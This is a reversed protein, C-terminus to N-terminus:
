KKSPASAKDDDEDEDDDDDADDEDDGDSDSMASMMQYSVGAQILAALGRIEGYSVRVAGEARAPSLAFWMGIGADGTNPLQNLIPEYPAIEEPDVGRKLVGLALNRGLTYVSAFAVDVLDKRGVAEPCCKAFKAAARGTCAGDKYDSGALTCTCVDGQVRANLLLKKGGFIAEVLKLATKAEAPDGVEADNVLKAADFGVAFDGDSQRCEVFSMENTYTKRAVDFFAACEAFFERSFAASPASGAYRSCFKFRGESDTAAYAMAQMGAFDAPIKGLLNRISKEAAAILAKVKADDAEKSLKKFAGDKEDFLAKELIKRNADSMLPLGLNNQVGFYHANDPVNKFALTEASLKAAKNKALAGDKAPTCAFTVDIGADSSVIAVTADDVYALEELCNAGGQKATEEALRKALARKCAASLWARVLENPALPHAALADANTVVRPAPNSAFLDIAFLKGAPANKAAGVLMPGAMPNGMENALKTAAATLTKRPAVRYYLNADEAAFVGGAVLVALFILKKM